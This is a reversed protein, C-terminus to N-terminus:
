KIQRRNAEIANIEMNGTQIAQLKKKQDSKYLAYFDRKLSTLNIPPADMISKFLDKTMFKHIISDDNNAQWLAFMWRSKKALELFDYWAKEPLTESKEVIKTRIEGIAPFFTNLKVISDIANLFLKDPIDKLLRWWIELTEARFEPTNKMQAAQLVMIGMSFTKKLM